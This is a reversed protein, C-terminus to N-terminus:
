IHILSLLEVQCGRGAESRIQFSGRLEQLRSNVADLGIGRGSTQTTESRTTFGSTLILQCLEAEGPAADAAILGKQRAIQRIAAFDLGAGDDRCRVVITDGERIFSLGIRGM